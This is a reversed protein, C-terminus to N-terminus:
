APEPLLAGQLAQSVARWVERHLAVNRDRETVIEIVRLGGHSGLARQLLPGTSVREFSGGYMRVAAEFDLGTPTGFLPEFHDAQTAQPLFSFIGGGDNNSLLITLDLNHRSAALLGNLDHYFSLDGIALYAPGNGASAGLASSVVGDIGNAGRNSLFRISNDIGPFFTDLDRVPMSSGVYLTAGPPLVEALDAFVKGEFPEELGALVMEITHRTVQDIRRWEQMWATSTISCPAALRVSMDSCLDSAHVWLMEAATGTPDRWGGGEDVVIQRPEHRELFQLLPKSTPMAGFRVVVEPALRAVVQEDRLFADYADIVMSRDHQGCRVGSLPDALIPFDLIGALTAVAAPFAADDQPGCVIIGRETAALDGALMEVTGTNLRRHSPPVTVYPRGEPRAGDDTHPGPLPVLPERFPLNLHVPGAPADIATAVARCAIMRVSHLTRTTVEPLGVDAFWKVHDGYLRNQDITQPAGTDRLEAPRDATLVLLPVRGYRAEIVAPYFEAAATGSTCLLAVTERLCKALGLAFFSSSREDIHIWVKIAPHEALLIALPTSRSGPSICAHRIGSRALEEVFTSVVAHTVHQQNM